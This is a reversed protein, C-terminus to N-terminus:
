GRVDDGAAGSALSPGSPDLVRVTGRREKPRVLGEASNTGNAARTCDGDFPASVIWPAKVQTMPFTFWGSLRTTLDHISM